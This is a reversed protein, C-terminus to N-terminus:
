PRKDNDLIYALTLAFNLCLAPASFALCASPSREGHGRERLPPPCAVPPGHPICIDHM